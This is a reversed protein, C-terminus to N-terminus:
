KNQTSNQTQEQAKRIAEDDTQNNTLKALIKIVPLLKHDSALTPCVKVIAALLGYLAGLITLIGAWNTHIWAVVAIIVGLQNMSVEKGM